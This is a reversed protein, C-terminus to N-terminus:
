LRPAAALARELTISAFNDCDFDSDADLLEIQKMYLVVRALQIGFRMLALVEYYALQETSFGTREQWRASMEARSPFGDLREIELGETFCRDSAIWWALDQIPHGLRVMEWDLLAVCRNGDFIQNALRSDGWCLALPEPGRPPHERLYAQATEILPYRARELGWTFYADYEDLQAQLSSAVAGGPLDMLDLARPDLRHVECMADFGSDHLARRDERTLETLFGEAHMPPNDSPIRGEIKGMLYFPAGLVDPDLELLEVRPVPVPTPALARLVRAQRAMDYSPFVQFGRPACRFVLAERVAAGARTGVLDFLRTESSFGTASPAEFGEIALNAIDPRKSALHRALADMMVADDDSDGGFGM